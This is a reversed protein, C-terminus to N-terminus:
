DNKPNVDYFAIEGDEIKALYCEVEVGLRKEALKEAVALLHGAIDQGISTRVLANWKGYWQCDEHNLLVIRPIKGKKVMFELQDWLHRAAKIRAPSALDHIGGPIIIPVPNKIGLEQDVFRRFAVQFRPDSCHIVLGDADEPKVLPYRNAPTNQSETMM